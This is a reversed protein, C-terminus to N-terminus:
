VWILDPLGLVSEGGNHSTLPVSFLCFLGCSFWSKYHLLHALYLGNHVNQQMNLFKPKGLNKVRVESPVVAQAWCAGYRMKSTIYMDTSPTNYCM